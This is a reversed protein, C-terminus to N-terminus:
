ALWERPMPTERPTGLRSAWEAVLEHPVGRGAAIDADARADRIATWEEDSM